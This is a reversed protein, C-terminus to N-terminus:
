VFIAEKCSQQIFLGCRLLPESLVVDCPNGQWFLTDTSAKKESSACVHKNTSCYKCESVSCVLQGFVYRLDSINRERGLCVSGDKIDFFEAICGFYNNSTESSCRTRGLYQGLLVQM